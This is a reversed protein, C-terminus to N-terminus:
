ILERLNISGIYNDGNVGIVKRVGLVVVDSTGDILSGISFPQNNRNESAFSYGSGTIVDILRGSSLTNTNDLIAYEVSSNTITNWTVTGAITPNLYLGATSLSGTGSVSYNDSFIGGGIGSNTQRYAILGYVTTSGTGNITVPTANAFSHYMSTCDNGSAFAQYSCCMQTFSGTGGTSEMEFRVPTNPNDFITGTSVNGYQITHFVVPQTGVFVGFSAPGVGLWKFDIFYVQSKTFDINYASSGTGDLKDQWGNRAVKAIQTGSRWLNVYYDTNANPSAGSERSIFVCDYTNYPATTGGDFAGFRTQTNADVSNTFYGTIILRVAQGPVYNNRPISQKIIYDSNSTVSLTSSAQGTNYTCSGTGSSKFDFFVANNDIVQKHSFITKESATILEYFSTLNSSNFTTAVGSM